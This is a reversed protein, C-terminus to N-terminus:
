SDVTGPSNLFQRVYIYFYALMACLAATWPAFIRSTYDSVAAIFCRNSKLQHGGVPEVLNSVRLLIMDVGDRHMCVIIWLGFALM